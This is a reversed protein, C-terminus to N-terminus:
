TTFFCLTNNVEVSPAAPRYVKDKKYVGVNASKWIVDFYEYRKILKLGLNENAPKDEKPKSVHPSTSCSLRSFSKLNLKSHYRSGSFMSIGKSKVLVLIIVRFIKFMM